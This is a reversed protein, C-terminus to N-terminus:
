SDPLYGFYKLEEAMERNCLGIEDPSMEDTFRLLKGTNFQKKGKVPNDTFTHIMERLIADAPRAHILKSFRKMEGSPDVMLDHYTFIECLGSGVWGIGSKCFERVLPISNQVSDFQRFYVNMNPHGAPRAGHDIASLIVDRPDRHIYTALIEKQKLLSILDATLNVHSKVVFPGTERSLSVLKKLTDPSELDHVFIGIGNIKGETIMEEFIKQGNGAVTNELIHKQYLSFLTSGSKPMGASLIFM